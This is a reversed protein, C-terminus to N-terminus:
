GHPSFIIGSATLNPRTKQGENFNQRIYPIGKNEIDEIPIVTLINILGNADVM